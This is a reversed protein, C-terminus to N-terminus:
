QLKTQRERRFILKKSQLVEKAKINGGEGSFLIKRISAKRQQV